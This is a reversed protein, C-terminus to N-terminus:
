TRTQALKGACRRRAHFLTALMWVLCIGSISITIRHTWDWVNSTVPSGEALSFMSFLVLFALLVLVLVGIVVYVSIKHWSCLNKLEIPQYSSSGAPAVNTLTRLLGNLLADPVFAVIQVFKDIKKILWALLVLTGVVELEVLRGESSQGSMGFVMTLFLVVAIAELSHGLLMLPSFRDTVDRKKTAM